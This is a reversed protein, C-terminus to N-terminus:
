RALLQRLTDGGELHVRGDIAQTPYVMGSGAEMGGWNSHNSDYSEPIPGGKPFYPLKTGCLKPNAPNLLVDNYLVSPHESNVISSVIDESIWLELQLTASFVRSRM